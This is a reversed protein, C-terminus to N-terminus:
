SERVGLCSDGFGFCVGFCSVWIGLGATATVLGGRPPEGTSVCFRADGWRQGRIESKQGRVEAGDNTTVGYPTVGM